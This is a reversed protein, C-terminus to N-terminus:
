ALLVNGKEKRNLVQMLLVNGKREKGIYLRRWYSM